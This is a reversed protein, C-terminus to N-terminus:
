VASACASSTGKRGTGSGPGSTRPPACTASATPMREILGLLRKRGELVWSRYAATDTRHAPLYDLLASPDFRDGMIGGGSAVTEQANWRQEVHGPTAIVMVPKGLWRAEAVAQFGATTVIARCSRMHELFLTDSLRHCILNPRLEMREPAGPRDWFVHVLTDPRTEHWARLEGVLGDHLLYVLLHEGATPEADLVARRLVPPLVWTTAGRADTADSLPRLSLAARPVGRPATMRNLLRFMGLEAAGAPPPPVDPHDFLYHLSSLALMRTGSPAGSAFAVGGLHDWFNVVLDPRARDMADHLRRISSWYRPARLANHSFTAFRSISTRSAGPMLRLGPFSAPPVAFGKKFLDPVSGPTGEGVWIACLTHGAEELLESVALAQALHGRGEGNVVFLVRLGSPSV